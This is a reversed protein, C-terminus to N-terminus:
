ATKVAIKRAKDRETRPLSLVLVGDVYQADVKDADVEFPLSVTRTFEGFTRERCALCEDDGLEPEPRKGALTLTRGTVHIDLDKLDLGPIESTLAVREDNGYVNVAPFPRRVSVRTRPLWDTGYWFPSEGWVDDFVDWLM